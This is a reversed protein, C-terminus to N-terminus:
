EGSDLEGANQELPKKDEDRITNLQKVQDVVKRYYEVVDESKIYTSRDSKLLTLEDRLHLVADLIPKEKPDLPLRVAPSDAM